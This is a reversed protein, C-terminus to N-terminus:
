LKAIGQRTPETMSQGAEVIEDVVCENLSSSLRTMVNAGKKKLPQTRLIKLDTVRLKLSLNDSM